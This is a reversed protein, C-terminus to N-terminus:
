VGVGVWRWFAVMPVVSVKVTVALLLTWVALSVTVTFTAGLEGGETM